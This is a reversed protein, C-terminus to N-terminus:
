GLLLPKVCPESNVYEINLIQDNIIEDYSSNLYNKITGQKIDCIESKLVCKFNQIIWEILKAKSVGTIIGSDFLKRFADGIQSQNANSTIKSVTIAQGTVLSSFRVFDEVEIFPQFSILIFPIQDRKFTVKLRDFNPTEKIFTKLYKKFQYCGWFYYPYLLRENNIFEFYTGKIEPFPLGHNIVVEQKLLMKSPKKMPELNYRFYITTENEIHKDVAKFFQENTYESEKEEKQWFLYFEFDKLLLTLEYQSFDNTIEKVCNHIDLESLEGDRIQDFFDYLTHQPLNM